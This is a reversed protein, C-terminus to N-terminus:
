PVRDSAQNKERLNRVAKGVYLRSTGALLPAGPISVPGVVLGSTISPYQGRSIRSLWADLDTSNKLHKADTTADTVFVHILLLVRTIGQKEAYRLAGVAATFLQYRLGDADPGNAEQAPLISTMLDLARSMAGSRPNELKSKHADSLVKSMVRDFPEDAKAEVAILFPGNQDTANVLLDTNRPEGRRDDVPLRVEPEATWSLVTTFDTHSSLAVAVERPLLGDPTDLWARAAEKASRGDKWQTALKPGARKEWEELTRIPVGNEEIM